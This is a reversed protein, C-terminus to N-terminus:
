PYTLLVDATRKAYMCVYKCVCVCMSIYRVLITSRCGQIYAIILHYTCM